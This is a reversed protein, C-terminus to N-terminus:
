AYIVESTQITAVWRINTAAAGTGTIALASNTTDATVALTWNPINSLVTLTSNVLVISAATAERRILGEIKWAASATGGAAQQRAVVIGTFAYASTAPLIVQNLATAATNTATLRTATADASDISLVYIGIQSCGWAFGRSGMGSFALKGSSATSTGYGLAVSYQGAARIFTGIATSRDGTAQVDQGIAYSPGGSVNAITENGIAVAYYGTALALKGIAISNSGTAGYTNANNGVAVAFSDAGSAYSSGFAMAGAGTLTKAGTTFTSGGIAVSYPAAASTAAGIAITYDNSAVAGSNFAFSGVGSATSGRGLATSFNGSAIPRAGNDTFNEAYGRMTKKDGTIWATGTCIIETGEGARLLITALGDITEAANPDITIVDGTAASTNWITCNFGSGLTAAATLSVTFAGSTCNIVKGLDGIVVTYAATQANLTVSASPKNNFTTWDTSTLYGNVSTTAAAMSIAPTTGGSSVVPATGTVSTIYTGAAQAGLTALTPILHVHDARAFTTGVGVAAVGLATPNTSSAVPVATFVFATTALQTTNTGAAATPASPTGTSVISDGISSSPVKGTQDLNASLGSLLKAKTTM